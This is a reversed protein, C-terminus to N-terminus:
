FLINNQKRFALVLVTTSNVGISGLGAYLRCSSPGCSVCVCIKGPVNSYNHIDRVGDYHLGLKKV